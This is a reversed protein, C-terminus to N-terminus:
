RGNQALQEVMVNGAMSGPEGLRSPGNVCTAGTVLFGAALATLVVLARMKAHGMKRM